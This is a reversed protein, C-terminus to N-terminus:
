VSLYCYDIGTLTWDQFQSLNVSIRTQSGDPLWLFFSDREVWFIPFNISLSPTVILRLSTVIAQLCRVALMPLDTVSVFKSCAANVGWLVHANPVNRNMSTINEKRQSRAFLSPRDIGRAERAKQTEYRPGKNTRANVLPQAYIFLWIHHRYPAFPDPSTHVLGQSWKESEEKGKEGLEEMSLVGDNHQHHPRINNGSPPLACVMQRGWKGSLSHSLWWSWFRKEKVNLGYSEKQHIQSVLYHFQFSIFFWPRCDYNHNLNQKAISYKRLCLVIEFTNSIFMYMTIWPFMWWFFSKGNLFFVFLLFTLRTHIQLKAACKLISFEKKKDNWKYVHTMVESQKYISIYTQLFTTHLFIYSIVSSSFCSDPHAVYSHFGLYEEDGHVGWRWSMSVTCHPPFDEIYVILDVSPERWMWLCCGRLDLNLKKFWDWM